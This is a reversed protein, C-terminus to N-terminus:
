RFTPERVKGRRVANGVCEDGFAARLKAMFAAWKLCQVASKAFVHM